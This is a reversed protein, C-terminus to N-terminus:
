EFRITIKNDVDSKIETKDTQNYHNKLHFIGASPNYRGVLTGEEVDALTEGDIMEIVEEYGEKDRHNSFYPLSVKLFKALGSKLKPKYTELGTKENKSIVTKDCTEFYTTALKGLM